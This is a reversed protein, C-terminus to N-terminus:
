KQKTEQEQILGPFFWIIEGLKYDCLAVGMRELEKLTAKARKTSWELKKIISKLSLEGGTEEALLIVEREDRGLKDPLAYYIGFQKVLQEDKLFKLSRKVHELAGHTKEFITSLSTIGEEEQLVRLIEKPLTTFTSPIKSEYKRGAEAGAIHFRRGCYPCVAVGDVDYKWFLLLLSMVMFGFSVIGGTSYQFSLIIALGGFIFSLLLM